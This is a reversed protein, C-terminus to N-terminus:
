SPFHHNKTPIDIPINYSIAERTLLCPQRSIRLQRLPVGSPSWM